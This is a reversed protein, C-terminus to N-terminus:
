SHTIYNARREDDEPYKDNQESSEEVSKCMRVARDVMDPDFAKLFARRDGHSSQRILCEMLAQARKGFDVVDDRITEDITRWATAIDHRAEKKKEPGRLELRAVYHVAGNLGRIERPVSPRHHNM